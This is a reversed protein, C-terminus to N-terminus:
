ATLVFRPPLVARVPRVLSGERDCAAYCPDFCPPGEGAICLPSCLATCAANPYSDNPGSSTGGGSQRALVVVLLVLNLALLWQTIRTSEIWRRRDQREEPDANMLMEELEAM